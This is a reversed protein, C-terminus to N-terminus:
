YVLHAMGDRTDQVTTPLHVGTVAQPLPALGRAAVLEAPVPRALSDAFEVGKETASRMTRHAINKRLPYVPLPRQAHLRGAPTDEYAEYAPHTIQPRDTHKNRGVIGHVVIQAGVTLHKRHWDVLHQKALFFTLTIEEIGDSVSVELSTGQRSRMRRERVGVVSVIASMEEGEHVEHLSRLPAPTTYRRPAFRMMTDLDRVGFSAMARSERRELLETLPISG